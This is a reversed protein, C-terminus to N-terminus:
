ECWLRFKPGAPDGGVLDNVERSIDTEILSEIVSLAPLGFVGAICHCPSHLAPQGLLLAGDFVVTVLVPKVHTVLNHRINVSVRLLVEM